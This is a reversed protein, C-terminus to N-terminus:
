ICLVINEVQKTVPALDSAVDAASNGIGLVLVTKDVFEQNDKYQQTHIVKGKFQELGPIDPM